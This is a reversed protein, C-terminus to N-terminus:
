SPWSNMFLIFIITPLVIWVMLKNVIIAWDRKFVAVALIIVGYLGLVAAVNGFLAAISEAGQERPYLAYMFWLGVGGGIAYCGSKIIKNIKRDAKEERDSFM